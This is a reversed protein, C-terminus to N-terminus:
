NAVSKGPMFGDEGGPSPHYGGANYFQIGRLLEGMDISWSAPSYDLNHPSCTDRDGSGVGYGDEELADCHYSRFNFMQVVRLLESLSIESDDDLDADHSVTNVPTDILEGEVEGEPAADDGEVEGETLVEDVGACDLNGRITASPGNGGIIEIYHGARISEYAAPSFVAYVPNEDTPLTVMIPGTEGTGGVGIRVLQPNFVDHALELVVQSGTADWSFTAVGTASTPTPLVVQPGDLDVVCIVQGPVPTEGEPTTDGETEGEGEGEGGALGCGGGDVSLNVNTAANVFNTFGEMANFEALNCVGDGDFDGEARFLPALSLNLTNADLPLRTRIDLLSLVDKISRYSGVTGLGTLAQQLAERSIGALDKVPINGLAANVTSANEQWVAVTECHAPMNGFFLIQDLMRLHATDVIGNLDIDIEDPTVDDLATAYINALGMESGGIAAFCDNSCFTAQSLDSSVYGPSMGIGQSLGVVGNDSGLDLLTINIQGDFNIAIQLNVTGGSVVPVDQYTVVVGGNAVKWSVTGGASPDLDDFLASVRPLAFHNVENGISSGDGGTFTIYGNSGVYLDNYAIGYFPVPQGPTVKAADDNGLTLVTGGAPDVPFSFAGDICTTYFNDTGDQSFSVTRYSLDNNGFFRETHWDNPNLEVPVAELNLAPHNFALDGASNIPSWQLNGLPLDFRQGFASVYIKPVFALTVTMTAREEYSVTAHYGAEPLAMPIQDNESSFFRGDSLRVLEARMSTAAIMSVDMAAGASVPFWSPVGLLNTISVDFLERPATQDSAMASNNFLWGSFEAEATARYDFNPLYPLDFNISPLFPITVAGKFITEVGFDVNVTGSANGLKLVGNEYLMEGDLTAGNKWVAFAALRVQLPFAGPSTGGGPWYGTDFGIDLVVNEATFHLGNQQIAKGLDLEVIGGTHEITDARLPSFALDPAPGVPLPVEDSYDYVQILASGDNYNVRITEPRLGGASTAKETRYETYLTDGNATAQAEFRAQGPSKPIRWELAGQGFDLSRIVRGQADTGTAPGTSQDAMARNLSTFGPFAVEADGLDILQRQVPGASSFQILERTGRERAIQSLVADSVNHADQVIATYVMAEQAWATGGLVFVGVFLSLVGRRSFTSAM